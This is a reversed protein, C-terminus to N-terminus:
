ERARRVALMRRADAVARAPADDPVAADAVHLLHLEAHGALPLSAARAIAAASRDTLDDAVLVCELRRVSTM